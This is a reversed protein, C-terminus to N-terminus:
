RVEVTHKQSTNYSNETFARVEVEWSGKSPFQSVPVDFGQCAYYSTVIGIPATKSISKQGAKSFTATCQGKTIGDVIARVIVKEANWETQTVTVSIKSDRSPMSGAVEGEPTESNPKESTDPNTARIGELEDSEATPANSDDTQKNNSRLYAGLLVALALFLAVVLLPKAQIGKRTKGGTKM